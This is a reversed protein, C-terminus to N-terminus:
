LTKIKEDVRRVVKHEREKFVSKDFGHKNWRKDICTTVDEEM